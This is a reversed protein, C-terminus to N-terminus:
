RTGQREELLAALSPGPRRGKGAPPLPVEHLKRLPARISLAIASAEIPLLRAIPQERDLVTLTHGSRVERLCESLRAKLEDVAVHGALKRTNRM